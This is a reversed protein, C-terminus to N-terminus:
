KREERFKSILYALLFTVLIIVDSINIKFDFVKNQVSGTDMGGFLFNIVIIAVCFILVAIFPKDYKQNDRPKKGNYKETKLRKFYDFM